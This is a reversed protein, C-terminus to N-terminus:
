AMRPKCLIELIRYDKIKRAYAPQAVIATDVGENTGGLSVIEAAPQLLGAELAMISVEVAVKMGQAFFRLTDAVITGPTHEGYCGESIGDALAHLGTLVTVGASELSDREEGSMKWGMDDFTPSISVAIIRVDTGRFAEAAQLASFGHTSPLVLDQVGLELARARALELTKATNEKGVGEFYHISAKM